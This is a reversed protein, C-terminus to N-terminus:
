RRNNGKSEAERVDRMQRLRDSFASGILLDSVSLEPLDGRQDVEVRGIQGDRYALYHMNVEGLLQLLEEGREPDAILEELDRLETRYRQLWHVLQERNTVSIDHALAEDTGALRTTDKFGDAALLSLEPWAESSRTLRFLATAAILPLHSIGAVYADHEDADMFMPKAGLIAALGAITEVAQSSGEASAVVAWRAGEFLTAEAHQPGVETKGAMPHGGVFTVRRPLLEHAWEMVRAKTSAVDTVVTGQELAGAIDEMVERMALVPSALVVLSAGQVARRADREERDIAGVRRAGKLRDRYRDHGVVEVDKLRDSAKLGLGISSGILGTGLIAIRTM